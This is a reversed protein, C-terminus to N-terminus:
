TRGSAGTYSTTREADPYDAKHRGNARGERQAQRPSHPPGIMIYLTARSASNTAIPTQEDAEANAAVIAGQLALKVAQEITSFVDRCNGKKAMAPSTITRSGPVETTLSTNRIKLLTSSVPPPVPNPFM